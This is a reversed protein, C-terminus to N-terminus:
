QMHCAVFLLNNALKSGVSVNWEGEVCGGTVAFLKNLPALLTTHLTSSMVGCSVVTGGKQQGLIVM